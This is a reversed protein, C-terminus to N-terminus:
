GTHHTQTHDHLRSLSSARAWFSPFGHWSFCNRVYRLKKTPQKDVGNIPSIAYRRNCMLSYPASTSNYESPLVSISSFIGTGM